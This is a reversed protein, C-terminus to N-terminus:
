EDRLGKSAGKNEEDKNINKAQKPKNGELRKQFM